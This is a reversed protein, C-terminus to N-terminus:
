RSTRAEELENKIDDLINIRFEGFLFAGQENKLVVETCIRDFLGNMYPVIRFNNNRAEFQLSSLLDEEAAKRSEETADEAMYRSHSDKIEDILNLMNSTALYYTRLGRKIGDVQISNAQEPMYFNLDKLKNQAKVRREKNYPMELVQKADDVTEICRIFDNLLVASDKQITEVQGSIKKLEPLLPVYNLVNNDASLLRRVFGMTNPIEAAGELGAALRKGSKELSILDVEGSEAVLISDFTVSETVPKKGPKMRIPNKRLKGIAEDLKERKGKIKEQAKSMIAVSDRYFKQQLQKIEHALSPNAISDREQASTGVFICGLVFLTALLRKKEM